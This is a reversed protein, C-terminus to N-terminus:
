YGFLSFALAYQGAAQRFVVADADPMPGKPLRASATRIVDTARASIWIGKSPPSAEFKCRVCSRAYKQRDLRKVGVGASM